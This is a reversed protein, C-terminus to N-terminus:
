GRETCREPLQGAAKGRRVGYVDESGERWFKRRGHKREEAGGEANEEKGEKRGCEAETDRQREEEKIKKNQKGRKRGTGASNDEKTETERIGDTDRRDRAKQRGRGGERGTGSAGHLARLPREQTVRLNSAPRKPIVPSCM